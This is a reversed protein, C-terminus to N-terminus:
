ASLRRSLESAIEGALEIGLQAIVQDAVAKADVTVSKGALTGLGIGLELLRTEAPATRGSKPNHVGHAWVAAGIQELTYSMIWDERYPSNAPWLAGIAHPDTVLHNRDTGPVNTGVLQVMCVNSDDPRYGPWSSPAALWCKGDVLRAGVLHDIVAGEGYCRLSVAGRLVDRMGLWAADCAGPSAFPVNVDVSPYVALSGDLALGHSSFAAAIRHGVNQGTARSANVLESTGEEYTPVYGLGAALAQDPQTTTHEYAGTLYGNVAIGGRARVAALDPRYAADYVWLDTM